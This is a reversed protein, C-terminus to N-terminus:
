LQTFSSVLEWVKGFAPVYGIFHYSEEVNEEITDSKAAPKPTKSKKPSSSKPGRPKKTKLAELTNTALANRAGRLDAPSSVLIHAASHGAFDSIYV